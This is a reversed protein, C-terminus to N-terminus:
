SEPPRKVKWTQAPALDFLGDRQPILWNSLRRFAAASLPKGSNAKTGGDRIVEGSDAYCFIPGSSTHTVMVATTAARRLIAAEHLSPKAQGKAPMGAATPALAVPLGGLTLEPHRDRVRRRAKPGGNM